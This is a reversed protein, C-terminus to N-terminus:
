VYYGAFVLYGVIFSNGFFSILNIAYEIEQLGIQQLLGLACKALEMKYFLIGWKFRAKIRMQKAANSQVYEISPQFKNEKQDDAM